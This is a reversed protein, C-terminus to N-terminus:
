QLLVIRSYETAFDGGDVLHPRDIFKRVFLFGSNRIAQIGYKSLTDWWGPRQNNGSHPKSAEDLASHLQSFPNYGSAHLYKAWVVFTDCAGQWGANGSVRLPANTFMRLSVVAEQKADVPSLTGYLAAMHWFEDLCGFNRQDGYSNNSWAFPQYNMQFKQMFNHLKGTSWMSVAREAHTRSLTMWQHVKVAVELGGYGPIDAWETPPFACFDSGFRNTLTAYIQAFPKAPLSSDSIFVFKDMSNSTAADDRTAIDLLQNMPSVLDTCYYSPVTPVAQIVSGAVYANCSPFKCHIFARYQEPPAQTFFNKWVNLNSVKDVALFLFYVRPPRSKTSNAVSKQEALDMAFDSVNHFVLQKPTLSSNRSQLAPRSSGNRLHLCSSPQWLAASLLPLLRLLRSAM